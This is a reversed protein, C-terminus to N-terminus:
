VGVEETATVGRHKMVDARILERIYESKTSFRGAIIEEVRVMLGKPLRVTILSGVTGATEQKMDQTMNVNTYCVYVSHLMKKQM